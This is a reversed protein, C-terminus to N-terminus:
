WANSHYGTDTKWCCSEINIRRASRGNWQPFIPDSIYIISSILSWNVTTLNRCIFSSALGLLVESVVLVYSVYVLWPFNLKKTPSRAPNIISVKNRSYPLSVDEQCGITLYLIPPIIVGKLTQSKPTATSEIHRCHSRSSVIWANEPNVVTDKKIWDQKVFKSSILNIM